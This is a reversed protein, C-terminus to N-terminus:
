DSQIDAYTSQWLLGRINRDLTKSRCTIVLVELASLSAIGCLVFATATLGFMQLQVPFSACVIGTAKNAYTHLFAFECYKAYGIGLSVFRVLAIMGIWWLMWLELKLLPIFIVLMVMIFVFDTISDLTAGFKSATNTKRAIFGDLVDSACCLLYVAFFLVSLPQIWLLAVAGAIRGATISTALYKIM